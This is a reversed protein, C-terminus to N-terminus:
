CVVAFRQFCLRDGCHSRFLIPIDRSDYVIGTPADCTLVRGRARTSSWKFLESGEFIEKPTIGVRRTQEVGEFEEVDAVTM